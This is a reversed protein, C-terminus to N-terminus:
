RATALDIFARVKPPVFRQAPYVISLTGSWRFRWRPLLRVLRGRVLDDECLLDPLAAVGDGHLAFLRIAEFDDVTIRGKLTPAISEKGKTLELRRGAFAAHRIFSHRELDRPHSPSGRAKLYAPSACLELATESLRRAMLTSDKLNGARFALDVGEGVLDVIRNTLMLEVEARPYKRLYARVIKPLRAHGFDVSATIRLLGRPEARATELESAGERIESLAAACRRFFAEGAATLSLKRTTRQLLTVGLGRELAAIKASVTTNPMGLRRAAGSFSGSEVVRAFVAVGNLDM